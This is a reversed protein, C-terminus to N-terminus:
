PIHIAQFDVPGHIAVTSGKRRLLQVLVSYFTLVVVYMDDGLIGGRNERYLKYLFRV